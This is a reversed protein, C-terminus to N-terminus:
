RGPDSSGTRVTAPLHVLRDLALVSTEADDRRVRTTAEARALQDFSPAVPANRSLRDSDLAFVLSRLSDAGQRAATRGAPDPAADAVSELDAAAQEVQARVSQWRTDEVIESGSAPLLSLVLRASDVAMRGDSRWKDLAETM